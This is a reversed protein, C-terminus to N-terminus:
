RGFMANEILGCIIHGFLLHCEQIKQTEVSPVNLLMDCREAMAKAENGTLGVTIMQKERAVELARLINMSKGSTSLGIFVDGAQGLAEVQRSFISEFAYDNSVATLISTDTTLAIAALGPRNYRLRVVLEAALHQADAASGGNGALLIKKGQRLAEEARRAITEVTHLLTPHEELQSLLVSLARIEQLIFSRM